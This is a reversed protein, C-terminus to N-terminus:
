QRHLNHPKGACPLRLNHVEADNQQAPVSLKPQKSFTAPSPMIGCEMYMEEKM